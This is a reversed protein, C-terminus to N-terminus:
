QEETSFRFKLVKKMREERRRKVRVERFQLHASVFLVCVWMCCINVWLKSIITNCTENVRESISFEENVPFM